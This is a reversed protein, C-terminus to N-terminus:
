EMVMQRPLGIEAEYLIGNEDCRYVIYALDALEIEPKIAIKDFYLYNQTINYGDNFGEGLYATYIEEFTSHGVKLGRPLPLDEGWVYISIVPIEIARDEVSLPYYEMSSNSDIDFSMTGNRPIRMYVYLNDWTSSIEVYKKTFISGRIENAKGYKEELENVSWEDSPYVDWALEDLDFVVPPSGPLHLQSFRPSTIGKDRDFDPSLVFAYPLEASEVPEDIYGNGVIPPEAETTNEHVDIVPTEAQTCGGYVFMAILIIMIAKILRYKTNRIDM